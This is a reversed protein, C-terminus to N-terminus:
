ISEDRKAKMEVDIFHPYLWCGKEEAFYKLIMVVMIHFSLNIVCNGHATINHWRELELHLCYPQSFNWFKCKQVLNLGFFTDFTPIEKGEQVGCCLHQRHVETVRLLLGRLCDRSHYGLQAFPCGHPRWSCCRHSGTIAEPTVLLFFISLRQWIKGVQFWIVSFKGLLFGSVQRQSSGTLFRRVSYSEGARIWGTM